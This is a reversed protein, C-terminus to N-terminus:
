SVLRKIEHAMCAAADRPTIKAFQQAQKQYTDVHALVDAITALLTAPTAHEQSLLVATAREVLTQANKAQENGAAWPLPIFIAVKGLAALEGVTNAGSRGIYLRAHAYIWALDDVSLYPVAHYRSQLQKPLSAAEREAKPFAVYGTQHVVTYKEVLDRVSSFVLTNISESGTAGGAIYLLPHTSSISFLQKKSAVFLEKRLPLGTFIAKDPSLRYHDLPYSVCIKKVFPLMMRNSLGLITTQEHTISHIGLFWGAIVVPFAIYGGFSVIANPRESAVYRFATVMGGIIKVLSSLTYRTFSRQLRGTGIPLFRIGLRDIQRYESSLEAEGELAFKRGVFVIDWDPFKQRIEEIVAIAPTVHGGTVFIKM